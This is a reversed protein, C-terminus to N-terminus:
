PNKAEAARRQSDMIAEEKNFFFSYEVEDGVADISTWHQRGFPSVHGIAGNALNQRRRRRIEKQRGREENLTGGFILGLIGALWIGWLQISQENGFFACNGVNGAGSNLIGLVNLVNSWSTLTTNKFLGSSENYQHISTLVEGFLQDYYTFQQTPISWLWCYSNGDGLSAAVRASDNFDVWAIQTDTIVGSPNQPVNAGAATLWDAAQDLPYVEQQYSNEGRNLQWNAGCCVPFLLLWVIALTFGTVFGFRM